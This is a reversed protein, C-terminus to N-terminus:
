REPHPLGAHGSTEDSHPAESLPKFQSAWAILAIMLGAGCAVGILTGTM